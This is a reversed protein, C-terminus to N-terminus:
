LSDATTCIKDSKPYLARNALPVYETLGTMRPYYQVTKSHRLGSGSTTQQIDVGPSPKEVCKLSLIRVRVKVNEPKRITYLIPMASEGVSLNSLFSWMVSDLSHRIKQRRLKESNIRRDGSFRRMSLIKKIIKGARPFNRKGSSM